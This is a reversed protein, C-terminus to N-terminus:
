MFNVKNSANVTCDGFQKIKWDGIDNSLKLNAQTTTSIFGDTNIQVINDINDCEFLIKMMQLRCYATLFISCRAWPYKFIDVKDAVELKSVSEDNIMCKIDFGDIDISDGKKVRVYKKNKSSLFGWLSNRIPKVYAKSTKKELDTFYEVFESFAKNGRICDASSYLAANTKNEVLAFELKLMKAIQLDYHTFWGFKKKTWLKHHTKITGYYLGYPLFTLAQFDANTMVKYTPKSAPFIFSSKRMFHCYMSNMDYDYCKKYEGKQAYHIGGHFANDLILHENADLAQPEAIFKTMKRFVDFAIRGEYQTKYYNVFGNTIEKLDNARKVYMDRTESLENENECKIFMNKSDAKLEEYGTYTLKICNDNYIAVDDDVFCMSYINQPKVEKFNVFVINESKNQKIEVHNDKLTLCINQIRIVDSQYSVDGNIVFSVNYLNEVEPLRELPIRATRELNLKKKLSSPRQLGPPLLNANFNFAKLIAEFLCDNSDNETRGMGELRRPKEKVHIELYRGKLDEFEVGSDRLYSYGEDISDIEDYKMERSFMWGNNTALKEFKINLYYTRELYNPIKGIKYKIFQKIEGVSKPKGFDYKFTYFNKGDARLPSLGQSVLYKKNDNNM